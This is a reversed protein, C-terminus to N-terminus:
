ENKKWMIKDGQEIHTLIAAKELLDLCKSFEEKSIPQLGQKLAAFQCSAFIADEFMFKASGFSEIIIEQHPIDSEKTKPKPQKVEEEEEEVIEAKAKQKVVKPSVQEALIEGLSKGETTKGFGYIEALLYSAHTIFAEVSEFNGDDVLKQLYDFFGEPVNLELKKM